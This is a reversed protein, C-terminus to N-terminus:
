LHRSVDACRLYLGTPVRRMHHVVGGVVGTPHDTRLQQQQSKQLQQPIARSAAAAASVCSSGVVDAGCRTSPCRNLAYWLQRHAVAAQQQQPQATSLQQHKPSSHQTTTDTLFDQANIIAHQCHRFTWTFPSTAHPSLSPGPNLTPRLTLSLLLVL